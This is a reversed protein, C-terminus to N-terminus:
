QNYFSKIYEDEQNKLKSWVNNNKNLWTVSYNILYSFTENTQVIHILYTSSGNTNGNLIRYMCFM